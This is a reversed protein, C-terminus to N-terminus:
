AVHIGTDDAVVPLPASIATYADDRITGLLFWTGRFLVLQGAYFGYPLAELMIEGTGRIHFPGLPSDGVMAYNTSRFTHGPFRAKFAPALLHEHTCFVLYYRDDILYVQPVEMEETMRDHEPPPMAEWRSMDKSRALGITGRITEDGETQRACVYQIVEEGTDLMFPDRWHTLTRQGTSVIEYYAADAGGTPNELLKEWHELDDSVAMGIRQVFFGEYKHGTFAMWYKGDRRIVSGTALCKDDWSGKPGRTLAPGVYTWHVLDRSVAHGIDWGSQQEELPMVLFYAHIADDEVFYWADGIRQGELSFM